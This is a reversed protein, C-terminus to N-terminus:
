KVVDEPHPIEIVTWGKFGKDEAEKRTSYANTTSFVGKDHQKNVGIYLKRAARALASDALRCIFFGECGDDQAVTFAASYVVGNRDHAFGLLVAPWGDVMFLGEKGIDDDTINLPNNHDTM